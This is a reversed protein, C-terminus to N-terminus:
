RGPAVYFRLGLRWLMRYLMWLVLCYGIQYAFGRVVADKPLQATLLELPFSLTYRFPQAELFGALSAPFLALPVIQGALFASVLNKVRVLGDVNHIWFALSGIVFDLLFTLAASLPLSVVFGLWRWPDAPLQLDGRFFFALLLLIPLLLPLKVLKEGVNNTLFHEVFPVPRVLKDSLNGSRIEGAVYEAAWSSTLMACLRLMLYYTVFQGRTYPLAVGAEDLKLWILLTVLLPVTGTFMYLFFAWRYALTVGMSRGTDRWLLKLTM